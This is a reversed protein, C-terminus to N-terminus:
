RDGAELWNVGGTGAEEEEGRVVVRKGGTGRRRTRKEEKWAGRGTSCQRNRCMFTIEFEEKM